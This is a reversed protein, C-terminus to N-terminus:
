PTRTGDACVLVRPTVQSSPTVAPRVIGSRAKKTAFGDSETLASFLASARPMFRSSVGPM